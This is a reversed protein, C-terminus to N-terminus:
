CICTCEAGGMHALEAARIPLTRSGLKQQKELAAWYKSTQLGFPCLPSDMDGKLAATMMRSAALASM